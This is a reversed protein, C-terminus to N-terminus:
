SGELAALGLAALLRARAPGDELLKDLRGRFAAIDGSSKFDTLADRVALLRAVEPIQGAVADPGFDALERFTLTARVGTGDGVSRASSVVLDLRPAHAALVKAFNDRDVRIPLREDVPREDRGIYDGVFLMRLPLETEAEDDGTKCVINLRERPLTGHDM